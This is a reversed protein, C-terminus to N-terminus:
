LEHLKDNIARSTMRNSTSILLLNNWIKTKTAAMQHQNIVELRKNEQNLYPHKDLTLKKKQRRKFLIEIHKILLKM